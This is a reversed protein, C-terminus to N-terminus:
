RGGMAKQSISCFRYLQFSGTAMSQRYVLLVRARISGMSRRAKSLLWSVPRNPCTSTPCIRKCFSGGNQKTTLSGNSSSYTRIEKYKDYNRYFRLFTRPLLGQLKGLSFFDVEPEEKLLPKAPNGTTKAIRSPPLLSLSSTATDEAEQDDSVGKLLFADSLFPKQPAPAAQTKRQNVNKNKPPPLMALLSSGGAGTLKPKKNLPREKLLDDEAERKPAELTIKLPGDRRRPKPLGPILAPVTTATPKNTSPTPKSTVQQQEGDSESDSGYDVLM